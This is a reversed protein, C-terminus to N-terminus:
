IDLNKISLAFREIFERRAEVEKGMLLNFLYDAQAADEVSVRLLTRTAPDMTTEWLQDANMEGLGKYRQIYVGKEGVKRVQILLDRLAGLELRVGEAVLTFRNGNGLYDHLECGFQELRKEIKGLAKAEVIEVMEVADPRKPATGDENHETAVRVEQGTETSKCTIFSKLEKESHFLRRERKFWAMFRPFEGEKDRQQIYEPFPIGHKKLANEIQETEMLTNILERLEKPDDIKKKPGIELQVGEIGMELLGAKLAKEDYFYKESKRRTLKYLPPQAIYVHGKDILEKMHRFFFTLLLTRIHSGDVDADTMIIVRGYRLKELSFDDVGIGTGLATILARIENHNLMQNLRAREVNLIKGRLPLIAQFRRDRGQKASGGASDGEVIYIESMSINHSTCDALKGPLGGGLLAGKRRTLDRAKRAAVRAQAALVGKEVIANADTPNEELYAALEANVATRVLGEVDQNGLRSKTQGEFQPDPVKISLVATLGERWDDGTPMLDEKDKDKIKGKQLIYANLCRTLASKFGSVHTGGETTNINNVFSLLTENFSDSYQLAVAVQINQEDRSFSVVNRNIIGKNKNLFEVFTKIGGEYCFSEKLKLEPREDEINITLGSNLYALERMRKALTAYSYEMVEFITADPKFTVKTGRAETKGITELKTKRVGREFEQYYIFGDRYVEVHLWESLANVCSVGVGHLGGSVKYAEHDFKGGSHLTTLIVEVAPLNKEKHIDVPIGRGNDTVSVSGDANIKVDIRDCHDAMAEDISNDVVEYVLHHLGRVNVDGIYMAPRRRIPDIGELVKISDATYSKTESRKTNM